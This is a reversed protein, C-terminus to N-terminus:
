RIFDEAEQYEYATLLPPQKRDMGAQYHFLDAVLEGMKQTLSRLPINM